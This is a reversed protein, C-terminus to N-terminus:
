NEIKKGVPNIKLELLIDENTRYDKRAYKARRRMLKMEASTIRFIDQVKNAESECGYL